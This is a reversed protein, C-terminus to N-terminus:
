AKSTGDSTPMRFPQENLLLKVTARVRYSSDPEYYRLYRIDISNLPAANGTAM